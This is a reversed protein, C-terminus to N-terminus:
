PQPEEQPPEIIRIIGRINRLNNKIEQYHQWAVSDNRPPKPLCQIVANCTHCRVEAWHEFWPTCLVDHPGNARCRDRPCRKTQAQALIERWPQASARAQERQKLSEARAKDRRKQAREARVEDAKPCSPWHLTYGAVHFEPLPEGVEIGQVGEGTDAAYITLRNAALDLDEAGGQGGPLTVRRLDPEFTTRQGCPLTGWLIPRKCFRCTSPKINM